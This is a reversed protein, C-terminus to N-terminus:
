VLGKNPGEVLGSVTSEAEGVDRQGLAEIDSLAEISTDLYDLEGVIAARKVVYTGGEGSEEGGKGGGM